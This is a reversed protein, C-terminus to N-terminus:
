RNQDSKAPDDYLGTPHEKPPPKPAQAITKLFQLCANWGTIRGENRVIQTPDTVHAGLAFPNEERACDLMAIFVPQEVLAIVKEGASSRLEQKTM